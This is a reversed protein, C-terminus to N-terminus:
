YIRMMTTKKKEMKKTSQRIVARQHIGGVVTWSACLMQMYQIHWHFCGQKCETGCVFVLSQHATTRDTMLLNPTRWHHVSLHVSLNSSGTLSQLVFFCKWWYKTQKRKLKGMMRFDDAFPSWIGGRANVNDSCLNKIVDTTKLHFNTM